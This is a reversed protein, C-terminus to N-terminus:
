YFKKFNIKFQRGDQNYTAPKEYKSNLLNTFSISFSNLNNSKRIILDLLNVSNVFENKSGTWDIHDGIHKYNLNFFITEKNKFSIKKEYTAGYSIDPRRPSPEGNLTRSKSFHSNISLKQTNNFIFNFESEVGEQNLIGTINEYKSWDSKIQIKDFIKTKYFTNTVNINKSFDYKTYFEKTISREPNIKNNGSYSNSSGYLEYLSPNKLGTSYTLGFTLNRFLNTYNLKYSKNGGTEKNDDNRLHISTSNFENIKYGLNAFTGLNKLHGKTQSDFTLTKYNGWDYKYEAGYGYSLKENLIISKENKLTLSESFYNNITGQENYKRDYNHYHLILTVFSNADLKEFGSQFAYMKNYSKVDEEADISVDYDSNTSRGYFMSKFKLNENIWKNANLNIQVNKAGDKESGKAIASNTKIKNTSAKLNLRWNNNTINTQNLKISNNKSNFGSLSFSNKYDINTIFNIAGGIAGPGFHSGNSGKYVEIREISEIFDQGFDHIGNTTSQDNIPIGNLLVLTHNSESGRIFISGSQGKQGNQYYDIGPILKIVDFTDEAAITDFDNKNFINKIINNNNYASSNSTKIISLCPINNQNNIECKEFSYASFFYFSFFILLFVRIM